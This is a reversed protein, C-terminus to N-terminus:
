RGCLVGVMKPFIRKATFYFLMTISTTIVVVLTYYLIILLPHGNAFYLEHISSNGTYTIIIKELVLRIYPIIFLHFAFIFFTYQEYGGWIRVANVLRRDIFLIFTILVGSLLYFPYIINGIATNHGDYIVEIIFLLFFAVLCGFKNKIKNEVFDRLGNGSLCIAAGIGFYFLSKGNLGPLGLSIQSFYLTSLVVVGTIRIWRPVGKRFIRWFIPTIIICVILDRMFWFSTLIPSSSQNPNGLLDVRDLNWNNSCWFIRWGGKGSIWEVLGNSSAIEWEGSMRLIFLLYLLNWILYPILLTKIRGLFKKKWITLEGKGFNSFFLFGSIVFFIPVAVHCLVHSFVAMYFYAVNSGVGQAAIDSYCWGDISVFSHIAVVMIALPFRIGSILVSDQESVM